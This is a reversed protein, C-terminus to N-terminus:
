HQRLAHTPARVDVYSAYATVDVARFLYVHFRINKNDPVPVHSVTPCYFLHLAM